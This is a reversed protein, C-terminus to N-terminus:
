EGAIGTILGDGFWHALFGAAREAVDGGPDQFALLGCIEGFSKGAHAEAFALAEAADLIRYLVAHSRDRWVLVEELDASPRLPLPDDALAAECVAVTGRSLTLRAVSASFNFRLQPWAEAPMRALAELDLAAADRADFVDALSREFTALDIWDGQDRWPAASKMFEPLQRAYCRANPHHSLVAEIYAEVLAGFREDGLANRLARYDEALFGALRLRYAQVYVKFRAARDLRRSPTVADLIAGDGTLIAEQFKAQLEALRM